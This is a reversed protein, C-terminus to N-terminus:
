LESPASCSTRWEHSLPRVPERFTIRTGQRLCGLPQRFEAAAYYDVAPLGTGEESGFGNNFASAVPGTTAWPCRAADSRAWNRSGGQWVCVEGKGDRGSFFCVAGPTCREYGPEPTGGGWAILGATLGLATGAAVLVAGRALARARGPRRPVQGAAATRVRELLVTADHPVRTEHTRSLCDTVIARWPAPLAPSLRLDETGRAYRVAADRRAAPTGGPLPHTATLVLHALVGFAWIDSSPRVRSGRAGVEPWLLEPPTYDPTAFGPGYAHTGELEGATSFDGLRVSGDPMLLVNGPKLDGHVWGADHLQHLGECIQALLAPGEALPATGARTGARPARGTGPGPGAKAAGAGTRGAGAAGAGTRGAGAAGAGTRGAGTEAAGAEAEALLSQLSRDARELVLVTAGDLEPNAPDDVTLTEYLRILRPARLRSLLEVEREALDKLHRLGRPTCTGTPLFKLAVEDAGARDEGAGARDEAAEPGLPEAGEARRAAYM